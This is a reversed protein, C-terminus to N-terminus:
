PTRATNSNGTILKDEEDDEDDTDDTDDEEDVRPM